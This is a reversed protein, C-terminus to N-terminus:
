RDNVHSPMTFDTVPAKFTVVIANNIIKPDAENEASKANEPADEPRIRHAVPKSSSGIVMNSIMNAIRSTKPMNMSWSEMISNVTGIKKGKAWVRPNSRIQNATITRRASSMLKVVGGKPNNNNTIFPTDAGSVGKMVFLM